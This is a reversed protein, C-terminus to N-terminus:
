ATASPSVPQSVPENYGFESIYSSDMKRIDKYRRFRYTM